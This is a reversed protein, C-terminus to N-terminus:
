NFVIQYDQHDHSRTHIPMVYLEFSAGDEFAFRHLGEHVIPTLPGRLLLTFGARHAATANHREIATLTLKRGDSLLLTAGVHPAFIEASIAEAMYKDGRTQRRDHKHSLHQSTSHPNIGFWRPASSDKM